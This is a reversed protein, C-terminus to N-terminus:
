FSGGDFGNSDPEDFSGGDFEVDFIPGGPVAALVVPEGASAAVLVVGNRPATGARKGDYRRITGNVVPVETTPSTPYALLFVWETRDALLDSVASEIKVVAHHADMTAAFRQPTSTKVDLYGAVGVGYSVPTESDDPDCNQFDVLVDAHWSVPLSYTSPPKYLNQPM